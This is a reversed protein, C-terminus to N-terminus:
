DRLNIERGPAEKGPGAGINELARRLKARARVARVRVAIVSTELTAAIEKFSRGELEQQIIM